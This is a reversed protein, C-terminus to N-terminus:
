IVIMNYMCVYYVNKHSIIKLHINVNICGFDIHLLLYVNKEEEEPTTHPYVSHVHALMYNM